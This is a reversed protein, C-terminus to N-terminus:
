SLPAVVPGVDGPRGSWFGESRDRDQHLLKVDDFGYVAMTAAMGDVSPLWWNHRAEGSGSPEPQNGRVNSMSWVASNSANVRSSLFTVEKTVSRVVDLAYLPHRLHYILGYFLVVDFRGHEPADYVLGRVFRVPLDLLRALTEGQRIYGVGVELVTVDAGHKALEFAVGGCNGGIDLVTVGDLNDPLQDLTLQARPKPDVIGPTTYGDITVSHYWPGLQELQEM